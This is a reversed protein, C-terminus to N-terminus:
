DLPSVVDRTTFTKRWATTLNDVSPLPVAKVAAILQADSPGQSYRGLGQGPRAHGIVFDAVWPPVDAREMLTRARHRWSHNATLSTDKMGLARLRRVMDRRLAKGRAGLTDTPLEPFLVGDQARQAKALRAEAASLRAQLMAVVPRAIVPV